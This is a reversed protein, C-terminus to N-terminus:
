LELNGKSSPHPWGIPLCILFPTLCFPQLLPLFEVSQTCVFHCQLSDDGEELKSCLEEPGLGGKECSPELMGEVEEQQADKSM